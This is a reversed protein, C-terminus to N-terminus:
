ESTTVKNVINNNNNSKKGVILTVITDEKVEEGAKRTQRIVIGVKEDNVEHEIKYRLKVADLAKKAESETKGVVNPVKVKNVNDPTDVVPTNNELSNIVNNIVNTDIEPKKHVDCVDTITSYKGGASTKWIANKEKEPPQLGNREEIDICFENALKGTEKCVKLRSHGTCASPVTGSVFEETYTNSCSGTASKGSDKCIKATVINSPKDFTKKPLDKHIDQMIASWIKASPNGSYSIVEPDDFGFWTAAAYYPTLGCLWRDKNSDTTGTKAGVDMGSIRCNTATGNSGIVPSKLISKTIYATGESMVRRKEQKPQLVTKGQSDVLKSYFTPTIYEGGNAITAYAGAMELPTAGHTLGGLVIALGNDEKDDLHNLGLQKLFKISNEPGLESMIKVEVVNSSVEIAKRVTILGKYGSSNKPDYKGNNFTTPSDDYVTGATIIKSELSPAISAIPKISSGPQRASYIRNLGLANVDTGLGGMCGVVNGTKYDIIVMASQSHQGSNKKSKVIYKDKIYEEQMRNQISRVETTYLKYGGGYLRSKAYEYSMGKEEVMQNVVQEITASLHYSMDTGNSLNGQRFNLGADVESIAKNFEENSIMGLEKMKDLVTKTRKKIKETNDTETFPNYNNPSHNIGALYASESITLEDASKGFYYESAVEVGCINRGYGGLYIINLYLELIQSKSIIKEIQYARSMERIKRQIGAKGEDDKENTINKILQQTITSGGFSSTGKNFIYTITAATSRKIDIGHHEYFREDEIAIFAKPLYEPMDNLTIIKRNEDGSLERILNGESDYVFTNSNSILLDEKSMAFKDSFFIGAFIGAGILSILIFVLILIIIIKKIIKAKNVQKSKQNKEKNSNRTKKNNKGM